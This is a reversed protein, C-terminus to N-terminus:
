KKISLIVLILLVALVFGANAIFVFGHWVVPTAFSLAINSLLWYVVAWQNCFKSIKLWNM